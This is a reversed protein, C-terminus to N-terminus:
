TSTTSKSMQLSIWGKRHQYSSDTLNTLPPASVILTTCPQKTLQKFQEHDNYTAPSVNPQCAALREKVKVYLFRDQLGFGRRLRAQEAVLRQESQHQPSFLKGGKTDTQPPPLCCLILIAFLHSVCTTYYAPTRERPSRYGIGTPRM